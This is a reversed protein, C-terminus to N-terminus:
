DEKNSSVNDEVGEQAYFDKEAQKLCAQLRSYAKELYEELTWPKEGPLPAYRSELNYETANLRRLRLFVRRLDVLGEGILRHEDEAGHNDHLHTTVLRSGFLALPDEGPTFCNAHGCDFCFGLRPSAIRDLLYRNYRLYRTNELAINVGYKEGAEAARSFRRLGTENPEPTLNRRTTHVVMHAVGREGAERVAQLLQKELADGAEGERWLDMMREQPFHATRVALGLRIIEDYRACASKGKEEQWHIMVADFGANKVARLQSEEGIRSFGFPFDHGCSSM